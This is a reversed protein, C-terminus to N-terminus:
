TLDRRYNLIYETDYLRASGLWRDHSARRELSRQSGSPHEECIRRLEAEALWQLQTDLTLVHTPVSEEYGYPTRDHGPLPTSNPQAVAFIIHVGKTKFVKLLPYDPDAYCVIFNHNNLNSLSIYTEWYDKTRYRADEVTPAVDSYSLSHLPLETLDCERYIFSDAWWHPKVGKVEYYVDSSTKIEDNIEVPDVSLGVADLRVYVGAPLPFHTAGRTQIIMEITSEAYNKDYWGTTSNRTGLQLKRRTVDFNLSV